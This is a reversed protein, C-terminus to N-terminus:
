GTVQLTVPSFRHRGLSMELMHPGPAIMHPLPFNVEWRPPLPDTCFTDLGTVETGDIAAQFEEMQAAEEIAVKVCRTEISTGSLLNVGDTVSVIRPVQPGPPIVRLVAAACLVKGFWVLEAPLLGTRHQENLVANIQQVGVANPPGIYTGRASVGGFRIELDFLDAEPPLHEVWVSVSAYRGKNPAVPEASHANTIRVIRTPAAPPPEAPLRRWGPERKVLTTWMYQTSTGELALIQFEQQRTFDILEQASIRVGAWTDYVKASQPLGNFQLRALGGPKLVRHIAALYEMVVERSPIHQFVAYSYVIDFSSDAFQALGAGAAVHAHAHPIGRLRERALRIMEDSIDVGHIEGFNHALPKMLRGPGCGIELARRARPNGPGLRTLEWEVTAVVERATELFEDETQERRGFAVYYHADERARANWDERMRDSIDSNM